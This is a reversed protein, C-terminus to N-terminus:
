QGGLQTGDPWAEEGLLTGDASKAVFRPATYLGEVQGRVELDLAGNREVYLSFKLSSSGANLVALATPM